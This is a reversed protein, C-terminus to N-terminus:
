SPFPLSAEQSPLPVSLDFTGPQPPEATTVGSTTDCVQQRKPYPLVEWRLARSLIQKM